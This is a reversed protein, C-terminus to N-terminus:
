LNQESCAINAYLQQPRQIVGFLLCSFEKCFLVYFQDDTLLLQSVFVIVQPIFFFVYFVGEFQSPNIEPM